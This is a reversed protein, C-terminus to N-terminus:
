TRKMRQLEDRVETKVLVNVSEKEDRVRRSEIYRELGEDKNLM